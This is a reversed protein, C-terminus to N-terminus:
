FDFSEPVRGDGSDASVSTPGEDSADNDDQEVDSEDADADAHPNVDSQGSDEPVEDGAPEADETGSYFGIGHVRAFLDSLGSTVTNYWENSVVKLDRATLYETFSQEAALRLESVGSEPVMGVVSALDTLDEVCFYVVGYGNVTIGM